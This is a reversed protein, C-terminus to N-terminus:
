NGSIANQLIGQQSFGTDGFNLLLGFLVYLLRMLQLDIQMPAARASSLMSSLVDFCKGAPTNRKEFRKQM